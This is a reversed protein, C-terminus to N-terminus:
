EEEEAELFEIAGGWSGNFTGNRYLLWGPITEGWPDEDKGIRNVSGQILGKEDTRKVFTLEHPKRAGRPPDDKRTVEGRAYAPYRPAYNCPVPRYSLAMSGKNKKALKEFAWVSMDVHMDGADADQCCWRKNSYANAAYQCPCADVVRVVLSETTNHCVQGDYQHGYGDTYAEDRCRVEYCAGCSDVFEASKDSIAIVDHGPYVSDFQAGLGCSGKHISYGDAGFYTSRGKQPTPTPRAYTTHTRRAPGVRAIRHEGGCGRGTCTADSVRYVICSICACGPLAPVSSGEM